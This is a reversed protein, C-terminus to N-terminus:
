PVDRAVPNEILVTAAFELVSGTPCVSNSAGIRPVSLALGQSWGLGLTDRGQEIHLKPLPSDYQLTM